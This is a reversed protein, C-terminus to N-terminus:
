SSAASTASRPSRTALPESPAQRGRRPAGDPQVLPLVAEPVESPAQRLRRGQELPRRHRLQPGRDQLPPDQGAREAQLPLAATRPRRHARVVRGLGSPDRTRRLGGRPHLRQDWLREPVQRGDRDPLGVHAALGPAHERPQPRQLREAARDHLRRPQPLVARHPLDRALPLLPPLLRLQQPVDHRCRRAPEPDPGHRADIREPRRDNGRDREPAEAEREEQSAGPRARAQEARGQGARCGGGRARDAARPRMAGRGAAAATQRMRADTECCTGPVATADRVLVDRHNRGRYRRCSRRRLRNTQAVTRERELLLTVLMSIVLTPTRPQPRIPWPIVWIQAWFPQSTTTRSTSWSLSSLPRALISFCSPLATEFPLISCASASATSPRM